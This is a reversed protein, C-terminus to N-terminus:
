MKLAGNRACLLSHMSKGAVAIKEEKMDGQHNIYSIQLIMDNFHFQSLTSAIVPRWIEHIFM